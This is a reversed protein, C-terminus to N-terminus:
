FERNLWDISLTWRGSESGDCNTVLAHRPAKTCVSYALTNIDYHSTLGTAKEVTGCCKNDIDFFVIDYSKKGSFRKIKEMHRLIHLKILNM